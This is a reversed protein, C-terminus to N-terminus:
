QGKLFTLYRKNIKLITDGVEIWLPRNAYKKKVLLQNPQLLVMFCNIFILLFILSIQLQAQLYFLRDKNLSKNHFSKKPDINEESKKASAEDADGHMKVYGGITFSFIEM